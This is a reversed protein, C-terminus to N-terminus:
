TVTSRCARSAKGFRWAVAGAGTGRRAGTAALERLLSDHENPFMGTEVDFTTARGRAALVEEVTPALVKSATRGPLATLGLGDLYAEFAGLTPFRTLARSTDRMDGSMSEADWTKAVEVAKEYSLTALAGLCAASRGGDDERPRACGTLREIREARPVDERQAFGAPDEEPDGPGGSTRSPASGSSRCLPERGQACLAQFVSRAQPHSQRYMAAALDERLSADATGAHLKLLLEAARPSDTAGLLLAATRADLLFPADKPGRLVDVAARELKPTLPVAPAGEPVGWRPNDLFAIYAHAPAERTEFLAVTGPDDCRALRFWMVERVAASRKPDLVVGRAWACHNTRCTFFLNAYSWLGKSADVGPTVTRDVAASLREGMAPDGACLLDRVYSRPPQEPGWANEDNRTLDPLPAQFRAPLSEQRVDMRAYRWREVPPPAPSASGEGKCANGKCALVSLLSLLIWSSPARRTM